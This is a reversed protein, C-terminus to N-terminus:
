GYIVHKNEQGYIKRSMFLQPVFNHLHMDRKMHEIYKLITDGM